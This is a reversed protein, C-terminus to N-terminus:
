QERVCCCGQLQSNGITQSTTLTIDACYKCETNPKGHPLSYFLFPTHTNCFIGLSVKGADKQQDGTQMSKIDQIKVSLGIYLCSPPRLGPITKREPWVSSNDRILQQGIICTSPHPPLARGDNNYIRIFIAQM